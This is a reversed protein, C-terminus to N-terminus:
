KLILRGFIHFSRAASFALENEMFSGTKVDVIQLFLRLSMVNLKQARLRLLPFHFLPFCPELPARKKVFYLSLSSQSYSIGFRIWHSYRSGFSDASDRIISGLKVYSRDLQHRVININCVDFIRAPFPSRAAYYSVLVGLKDVKSDDVLLLTSVVVKETPSSMSIVTRLVYM